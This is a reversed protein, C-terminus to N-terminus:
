MPWGSQEAPFPSTDRAKLSLVGYVRGEDALLFIAYPGVRLRGLM